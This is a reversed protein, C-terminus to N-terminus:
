EEVLLAVEAASQPHRRGSGTMPSPNERGRGSSQGWRAGGTMLKKRAERSNPSGSGASGEKPWASGGGDSFATNGVPLELGGGVAVRLKRV